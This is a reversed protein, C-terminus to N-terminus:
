LLRQGKEANFLLATGIIREIQADDLTDPDRKIRIQKMGKKNLIKDFSTIWRDYLWFQAM